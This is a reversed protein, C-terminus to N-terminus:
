QDPNADKKRKKSSSSLKDIKQNILVSDQRAQRIKELRQRLTEVMKQLDNESWEDPDKEFVQRIEVFNKM